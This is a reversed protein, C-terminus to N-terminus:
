WHGNEPMEVNACRGCVRQRVSGSSFNSMAMMPAGKSVATDYLGPAYRITEDKQLILSTSLLLLEIRVM